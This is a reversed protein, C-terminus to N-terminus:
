TLPGQFGKDHISPMEATSPCATERKGAGLLGCAPLHAPPVVEGVLEPVAERRHLLEEVLHGALLRRQLRDVLRDQPAEEVQHTKELLVARVVLGMGGQRFFFCGAKM